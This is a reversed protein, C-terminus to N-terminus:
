IKTELKFRIHIFLNRIQLFAMKNKTTAIKTLFPVSFKQFVFIYIFSLITPLVISFKNYGLVPIFNIQSFYMIKNSFIM